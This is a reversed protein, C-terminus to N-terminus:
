HSAEDPPPATDKEEKKEKEPDEYMPRIDATKYLRTLLACMENRFIVTADDIEKEPVEIVNIMDHLDNIVREPVSYQSQVWQPEYQSELESLVGELARSKLYRFILDVWKRAVEKRQKCGPKDEDGMTESQSNIKLGETNLNNASQTYVPM